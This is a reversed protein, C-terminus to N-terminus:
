SIELKGKPTSLTAVNEDNFFQLVFPVRQRQLPKSYVTTYTM